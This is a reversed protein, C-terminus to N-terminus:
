KIDPIKRGPTWPAGADDLMENIAPLDSEVLEELDGAVSEFEDVVIEYQKEHTGTPGQTSGMAGFMMTRLRSMFGPYASENRRSKTPDGNFKERIDMMKLEAARVSKWIETDLDASSNVVAKIADIQESANGLVQNAANITKSLDNARKVFELIAERDPESTDSYNLPEIEFEM